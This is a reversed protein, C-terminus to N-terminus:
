KFGTEETQRTENKRKEAHLNCGKSDALAGGLPNLRLSGTLDAVPDLSTLEQAPRESKEAAVSKRKKGQRTTTRLWWRQKKQRQLCTYPCSTGSYTENAQRGRSKCNTRTKNVRSELMKYVRPQKM